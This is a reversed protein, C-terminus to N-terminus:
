MPQFLHDQWAQSSSTQSSKSRTIGKATCLSRLMAHPDNGRVRSDLPNGQVPDGSARPHREIKREMKADMSSSGRDFHMVHELRGEVTEPRVPSPM